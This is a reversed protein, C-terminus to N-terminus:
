EGGSAATWTKRHCSEAVQLLGYCSKRVGHHCHCSLDWAIELFVEKCLVSSWLNLVKTVFGICVAQINKISHCVIFTGHACVSLYNSSYIKFTLAVSGIKGGVYVNKPAACVTQLTSWDSQTM